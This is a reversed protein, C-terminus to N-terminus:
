DDAGWTIIQIQPIDIKDAKEVGSFPLANITTTGDGIKLRPYSHTADADYIIIEGAKPIFSTAKVWNAEVDHKQQVRVKLEKESM